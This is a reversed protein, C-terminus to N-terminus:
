WLRNNPAGRSATTQQKQPAGASRITAEIMQNARSVANMPRLSEGGPWDSGIPATSKPMRTSPATTSEDFVGAGPPWFGFRRRLEKLEDNM